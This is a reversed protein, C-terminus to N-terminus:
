YDTWWIEHQRMADNAVRCSYTAIQAYRVEAAIWAGVVRWQMPSARARGEGKHSCLLVLHSRAPLIEGFSGIHDVSDEASTSVVFCCLIPLFVILAIAKNKIKENALQMIANPNIAAFM